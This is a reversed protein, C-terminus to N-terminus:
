VVTVGDSMKRSIVNLGILFKSVRSKIKISVSINLTKTKIAFM